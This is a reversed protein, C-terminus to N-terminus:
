LKTIIVNLQNLLSDYKDHDEGSIKELSNLKKAIQNINTGIKNLALFLKPDTNKKLIVEKNRVTKFLIDKILASKKHEVLNKELIFEDLEQLENPNFYISIGKVIKDSDKKKPAGGKNVKKIEKKAM